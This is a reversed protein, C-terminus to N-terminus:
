EPEAPPRPQQRESWWENWRRQRDDNQRRYEETQQRRQRERERDREAQELWYRRGSRSNTNPGAQDDAALTSVPISTMVVASVAVLLLRRLRRDM